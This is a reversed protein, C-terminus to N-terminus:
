RTSPASPSTSCCCRRIPPSHGRSRSVSSCAAPSSGPISTKLATLASRGCIGANRRAIRRARARARARSPFCSTTSAGHALRLPVQRIAPLSLDRGAAAGSRAKRGSRGQGQHPGSLGAAMRLLTSKGCGSPGVVALFESPAAELTIDDFAVFDADNGTGEFVKSVRDFGLRQSVDDRASTRLDTRRNFM